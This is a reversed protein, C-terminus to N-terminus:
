RKVTRAKKKHFPLVTFSWERFGIVIELEHILAGMRRIKSLFIYVYIYTKDFMRRMPKEM